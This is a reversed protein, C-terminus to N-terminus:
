ESVTVGSRHALDEGFGEDRNASVRNRVERGFIM